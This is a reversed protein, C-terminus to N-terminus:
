FRRDPLSRRLFRLSSSATVDPAATVNRENGGARRITNGGSAAELAGEADSVRDAEGVRSGAWSNPFENAAMLHHGGLPILESVHQPSHRHERDM